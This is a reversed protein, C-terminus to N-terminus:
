RWYYRWNYTLDVSQGPALTINWTIRGVGNMQNWWNPWSYYRWWVPYEALANLKEVRGNSSASTATGLVERTVEVEVTDKRYNTVKISGTLDVESYSESNIRVANPTRSAEAESRTVQIDVSKGIELDGTAGAPTYLMTGQSLVRENELILVPATTLPVASSNTLRIKHVPRPANLLAALETQQDLSLNGRVDVPPSIPLQLTYIDKYKLKHEAVPVSLRQGRKLTVNKITFLFLDESQSSDGLQPATDGPPAGPREVVGAQSAIANSLASRASAQFYGSLSVASNLALPDLTDKFAFSPVGVVLNATVGTVDTLENVVIGQLQATANGKGDISLRYSPIWRLGKQVYVVGVNANPGPSRNAWNLQLTLLNRFEQEGVLSKPSAKFVVDQIRDLPLAKVGEATRLLILEGRIPLSEATNPPSVERLEESSRRPIDLVTAPYPVGERVGSSKETVIVEAGINSELIEWLKLATREVVVRHQGATIANVKINPDTTYAWFTGLIPAPLYDMVVNGSADTPMSGEHMVFAHGDKFISVEKVPMRALAGSSPPQQTVLVGSVVVFLGSLQFAYHAIRM